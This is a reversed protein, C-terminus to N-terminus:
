PAHPFAAAKLKQNKDLLYKCGQIMDSCDVEAAQAVELESLIRALDRLDKNIAEYDTHNLPPLKSNVVDPM